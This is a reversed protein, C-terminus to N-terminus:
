KDYADAEGNAQIAENIKDITDETFERLNASTEGACLHNLKASM